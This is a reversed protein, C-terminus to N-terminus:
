ALGQATRWAKPTSGASQKFVRSFHAQDAFGCSLAVDILARNPDALMKKAQEVRYSLVFQMPSQGITQKFLRSFHSPSLGAEKALTDLTVSKGFNESVYDLVRKYHRSTFGKALEPLEDRDGYKQLLKILFVRALSEFMLESGVDRTELADKLLWGAQCIDADTFQPLDQLQRTTLLLGLESQAFRELKDPELTVVIVKSKAHWRWGSRIGAPTVVIEDKHYTFDRHEGDRWNEVRHPEARYNLLIHHQAYVREPMTGPQAEFYELTLLDSASTRVLRTSELLPPEPYIDQYRDPM